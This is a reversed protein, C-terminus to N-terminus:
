VPMPPVEKRLKSGVLGEGPLARGQGHDLLLDELGGTEPRHRWVCERRSESGPRDRRGRGGIGSRGPRPLTPSSRSWSPANRRDASTMSRAPVATAKVTVAALM